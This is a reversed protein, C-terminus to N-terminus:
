PTVPEGEDDDMFIDRNIIAALDHPIIPPQTATAHRANPAVPVGEERELEEQLLALARWAMYASHRVGKGDKKGADVLHRIIKNAHDTSKARDWHLPANAGHHQDNGLRSVKAVEALASPFYYLLGDAMPIRNRESADDPLSGRM